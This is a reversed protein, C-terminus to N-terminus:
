KRSVPLVPRLGELRSIMGPFHVGRIAARCFSANRGWAGGRAMRFDGDVPGAPNTDPSATYYDPDFWDNCFEWVNGHVDYLGFANPWLQAVPRTWDPANACYWAQFGLSDQGCILDHIQSGAFATASGARAAYEWEAETPLRYSERDIENTWTTHNYAPRRGDRLNLWDCYAAAGWWSLGVVPNDPNLGHGADRLFLTDGDADYGIEVDPRFVYFFDNNGAQDRLVVASERSITVQDHDLAWQAMELFQANTVETAQMWFAHTLTVRHQIEIETRGPEDVPSGMVFSGAPIFVFDAPPDPNDPGPQNPQDSSCATILLSIVVLISLSWGLTAMRNHRPSQQRRGPLPFNSQLYSSFGLFLEETRQCFNNIDSCIMFGREFQNSDTLL